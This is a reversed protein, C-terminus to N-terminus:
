ANHNAKRKLGHRKLWKLLLPMKSDPVIYTLDNSGNIKVINAPM